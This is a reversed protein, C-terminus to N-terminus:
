AIHFKLSSRIEYFNKFFGAFYNAVIELELIEKNRFRFNEGIPVTHPLMKFKIYKINETKQRSVM